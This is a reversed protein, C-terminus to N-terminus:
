CCKSCADSLNGIRKTMDFFLVSGVCRLDYNMKINDKCSDILTINEEQSLLNLKAFYFM